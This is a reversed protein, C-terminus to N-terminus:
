EQSEAVRKVRDVFRVVVKNSIFKMLLKLMWKLPKNTSTYRFYTKNEDIKKLEYETTIEFTNPESFTEKLQKHEPNDVYQLTEVEYEQVNKDGQYKQRHVSGVGKKTETIPKNEILGPMIKKMDEVSGTFLKWIQEIPANIETDHSWTKM